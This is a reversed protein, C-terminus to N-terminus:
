LIRSATLSSIFVYFIYKIAGIKNKYNLIEDEIAESYTM